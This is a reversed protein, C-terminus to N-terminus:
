QDGLFSKLAKDDGRYAIARGWIDRQEMFRCAKHLEMAIPVPITAADHANLGYFRWLRQFLFM